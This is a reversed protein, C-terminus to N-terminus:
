LLSLMLGVWSSNSSLFIKFLLHRKILVIIVYLQHQLRWKILESQKGWKVNQNYFKASRITCFLSCCFLLLHLFFFLFHQKPFKTKPRCYFLELLLLHTRRKMKKTYIRIIQVNNYCKWSSFLDDLELIRGLIGEFISTVSTLQLVDFFM